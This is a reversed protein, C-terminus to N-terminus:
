ARSVQKRVSLPMLAAGPIWECCIKMSLLYSMSASPDAQKDADRRTLALVGGGGVVLVSKGQVDCFIPFLRM